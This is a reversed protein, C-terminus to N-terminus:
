RRDPTPRPDTPRAYAPTLAAPAVLRAGPMLLDPDAGIVARNAQWWRPWEAAIQAASASPGLARAALHWLTDGRRVVLGDDAGHVARSSGAATVLRVDPVPPPPAPIRAPVWGPRPLHDARLEHGPLPGAWTPAPLGLHAPPRATTGPAPPRAVAAGPHAVGLAIGGALMAAIWPRLVRPCSSMALRAARASPWSGLAIATAAACVALRGAVAAAAAAALAVLLTAPVAPTGTVAPGILGATLRALALAAAILGACLAVAASSVARARM